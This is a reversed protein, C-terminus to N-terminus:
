SKEVDGENTEPTYAPTLENENAVFFYAKYVADVRERKFRYRATQNSRPLKESSSITLSVMSTAVMLAHFLIAILKLNM